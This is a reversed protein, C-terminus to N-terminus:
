FRVMVVGTSTRYLQGVRLGGAIAAANDAYVPLTGINKFDWFSRIFSKKTTM